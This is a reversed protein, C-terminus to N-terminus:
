DSQQWKTEPRSMTLDRERGLEAPTTCAEWSTAEKVRFRFGVPFHMNLLTAEAM